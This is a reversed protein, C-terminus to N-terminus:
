EGSKLPDSAELIEDLLDRGRNKWRAIWKPAVGLRELRELEISLKTMDLATCIDYRRTGSSAKAHQRRGEEYKEQYSTAEARHCPADCTRKRPGCSMNPANCCSVQCRTVPTSRGDIFQEAEFEHGDDCRYGYMKKHLMAESM